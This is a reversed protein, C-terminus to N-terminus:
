NISQKKTSINIHQLKHFHRTEKAATPHKVTSASLVCSLCPKIKKRATKERQLCTMCYNVEISKLVTYLM